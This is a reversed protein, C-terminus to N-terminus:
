KAAIQQAWLVTIAGLTAQAASQFKAADVNVNYTKDKRGGGTGSLMGLVMTATQVAAVAGSTTDELGKLGSDPPQITRKLSIIPLKGFDSNATTWHTGGMPRPRKEFGTPGMLRVDSEASIKIGPEGSVSARQSFFGGEAELDIFDVWFTVRVITAQLEGSFESEVFDLADLGINSLQAGIGLHARIPDNMTTYLPLGKASFVRYEKSANRGAVRKFDLPAAQGAKSLRERPAAPLSDYSIIEVGQTKLGAVFQDYVADTIAQMAANDPGNLTYNGHVSATGRSGLGGGAHAAGRAKVAFAIRFAPIIVKKTGSYDGRKGTEIWTAAAAPDQTVTAPIFASAAEQALLPQSWAMWGAMFLMCMSWTSFRHNM